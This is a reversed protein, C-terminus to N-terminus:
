YGLVFKFQETGDDSRQVASRNEIYTIYGSFIQFDPVSYNLLTRATKSVTGFVPANTTPTGTINILKLVNGSTDFSLVRASFTATELSAGQYVVEDQVYVGFGPAVILDTSTKYIASTAPYPSSQLSVANIVLGLQHFDIDTPIIGDESGTFDVSVM